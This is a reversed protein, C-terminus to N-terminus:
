TISAAPLTEEADVAANVTPFAPKVSLEVVAVTVSAAPPPLM